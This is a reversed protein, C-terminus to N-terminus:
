VYPTTPLTLHTYSVPIQDDRNLKLVDAVSRCCSILTNHSQMVGKPLGTSGSTFIVSAVDDANACHSNPLHQPIKDVENDPNGDGSFYEINFHSVGCESALDFTNSGAILIKCGSLQLVHRIHSAPSLENILVPVANLRWVGLLCIAAEISNPM